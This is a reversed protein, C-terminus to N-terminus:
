CTPSTRRGGRLGDAHLQQRQRHRARQPLPLAAVAADRHHGDAGGGHVDDRGHVAEHLRRRARRLDDAQHPLGQQRLRHRVKRRLDRGPDFLERVRDPPEDDVRGLRGGGRRQGDAAVREAGPGALANADVSFGLILPDSFVAGVPAANATDNFLTHISAAFELATLRRIMRPGPVSSTCAKENPLADPPPTIVASGGSGATGSSGAVPTSGGTPNAGGRGPTTGGTGPNAGGAAGAIGTDNGSGGVGTGNGGNGPSSPGIDGGGGACGSTAVLAVCLAAVSVRLCLHVM